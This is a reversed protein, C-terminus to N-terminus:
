FSPVTCAPNWCHPLVYQGTLEDPGVLDWQQDGVTAVISVTHRKVFEARAAVKFAVVQDFSKFGGGDLVADPVLILDTFGGFGAAVLQGETM